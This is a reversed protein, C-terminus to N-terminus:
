APCNLRDGNSGENRIKNNKILTKYMSEINLRNYYAVVLNLFSMECDNIFQLDFPNSFNCLIEEFYICKKNLMLVIVGALEIHYRERLIYRYSALQLFYKYSPNNSTKFDVLYIKDNIAVLLDLTGGFWECVLKFEQAIVMVRNSMNIQNWWMQFSEYANNVENMFERPLSFPDLYIEHKLFQEIADHTYTGKEAAEELTQKYDQGKRGIYNSWKMLGDEHLMASLIETTRPVPHGNFIYRDNDIKYDQPNIDQLNIM